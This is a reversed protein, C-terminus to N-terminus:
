IFILVKVKMCSYECIIKKQLYAWRLNTIQFFSFLGIVAQGRYGHLGSITCTISTVPVKSEKGDCEDGKNLIRVLFCFLSIVSRLCVESLFYRSSSSNDSVMIELKVLPSMTILAGHYPLFLSHWHWFHLGILGRGAFLDQPLNLKLVVGCHSPFIRSAGALNTQVTSALISISSLNEKRNRFRKRSYVNIFRDNKVSSKDAKVEVSDSNSTVPLLNPKPQYLSCTLLPKVPKTDVVMDISADSDAERKEELNEGLLLNPNKNENCKSKNPVDSPFLLFKFRENHLDLWEEENDDYKVCHKRIVPDYETVFGTYWECDLPWYVSIRWKVISFPNFDRLKVEYFRRRKRVFGERRRPGLIRCSGVLKSSEQVDSLMHVRNVPKSVNLDPRQDSLSCLMRAANEELDVEVEKPYKTREKRKQGSLRSSTAGSSSTSYAKHLVRENGKQSTRNEASDVLYSWKEEKLLSSGTIRGSNDAWTSGNHSRSGEKDPNSSPVNPKVRLANSGNRRRKIGAGFANLPVEKLAGKGKSSESNKCKEHLRRESKLVLGQNGSQSSPIGTLKKQNKAFIISRSKNEVVESLFSKGVSNDM